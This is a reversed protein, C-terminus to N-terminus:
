QGRRADVFRIKVIPVGLSRPDHSGALAPQFPPTTIKLLHSGATVDLAAFRLVYQGNDVALNIPRLPRGDMSVFLEAISIPRPAKALQMVLGVSHLPKDLFFPITADPESWTYANERGYLSLFSGSSYGQNDFIVDAASFKRVQGAVTRLHDINFHHSCGLEIAIAQVELNKCRIGLSGLDGDFLAKLNADSPTLSAFIAAKREDFGGNSAYGYKTSRYSDGYFLITGHSEFTIKAGIWIPAYVGDIGYSHLTKVVDYYTHYAPHKFGNFNSNVYGVNSMASLGLWCILYVALWATRRM